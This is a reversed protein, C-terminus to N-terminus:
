VEASVTVTRESPAPVGDPVARAVNLPTTGPLIPVGSRFCEATTVWGEGEGIEHIIRTVKFKGSLFHERGDDKVFRFNINDHVDILPTGIVRFQGRYQDRRFEDYRAQSLRRLEAQSHARVQWYSHIGSGLTLKAASTQPVAVGRAEVGGASLASVETQTGLQSSTGNLITNGGGNLASFVQNDQCSFEIVEGNRSRVYVYEHEVPPLWHHTHFHFVDRFDFYARYGSEGQDNVAQPLLTTALFHLDSEGSTSFPEEIRDATPEISSRGSRPDVTAWERDLAISQVIDSVRLGSGFSRIRRDLVTPGASQSVLELFVSAGDSRFTPVLNVAWGFFTIASARVDEARRITVRVRRDLQAGFLLTDIADFEPDFLTLSGTWAGKDSVEFNLSQLFHHAPLRVEAGNLGAVTIEVVFGTLSDTGPM